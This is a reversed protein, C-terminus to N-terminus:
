GSSKMPRRDIEKLVEDTHEGRMPVPSPRASPTANFRPAAVVQLIGDVTEYLGRALNHTHQAADKPALVPAFCVETGEMLECWASRTKEAFVIELRSALVDWNKKDGLGSVFQEDGDLGLKTLLASYFKPEVASLNIWEGDACRYSRMVFSENSAPRLNSFSGREPLMVALLNLLHASGDVTAADVIQGRGDERARLAGALVGIALYLASGGVVSLLGAHAAPRQGPATATWLTGSVAACNGHGGPMHALPGDHGWGSTRGYVLSQKRSLCVEPGFGSEEAAGPGAGEILIDASDVITLLTEVEARRQLDLVISRKGRNCIDAPRPRGTEDTPSEVVIVDAGLDALMMGCVTSAAASAIEIVRIGELVGM